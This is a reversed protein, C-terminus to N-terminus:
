NLLLDIAPQVARMEHGYPIPYAPPLAIATCPPSAGDRIFVYAPPTVTCQVSSAAFRIKITHPGTYASNVTVAYPDQSMYGSGGDVYRTYSMAPNAAPTVHVVRGSQNRVPRGAYTGLVEIMLRQVPPTPTTNFFVRMSRNGFHDSIVVDPRGDGNLDGVQMGDRLSRLGSIGAIGIRRFAYTPPGNNLFIKPQFDLVSGNVLVDDYGDGNVDGATMGFSGIAANAQFAGVVNADFVEVFQGAVIRGFADRIGGKWTYLHIVGNFPEIYVYDPYGDNNWDIFKLGEDFPPIVGPEPYARAFNGGGQNRFMIGNVFLDINGDEDYDIAQAGEPQAYPELPTGSNNCDAGCEATTLSVPTPAVVRFAGPQAAGRNMLLWSRPPYNAAIFPGCVGVSEAYSDLRTYQPIYLDLFGDNDFDAAVITEGRGRVPGTLDFAADRRFTGDPNQFYLQAANAPDGNCWYVNNVLDPRGDNNVDAVRTDRSARLYGYDSDSVIRFYGLPAFMAATGLSAPSRSGFTKGKNALGILEVRGDGDLDAIGTTYPADFFLRRTFTMAQGFATSAAVVWLIAAVFARAGASPGHVTL